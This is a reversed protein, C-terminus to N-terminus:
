KVERVSEDKKLIKAEITEKKNKEISKLKETFEIKRIAQEEQDKERKIRIAELKEHQQRKLKEDTLEYNDQM